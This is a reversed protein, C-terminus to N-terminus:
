VALFAALRAAGKARSRWIGILTASDVVKGDADRIMKGKALSTIVQPISTIALSSFFLSLPIFFGFTSSWNYESVWGFSKTGVAFSDLPHLAFSLLVLAMGWILAAVLPKVPSMEEVAKVIRESLPIAKSGIPNIKDDAM